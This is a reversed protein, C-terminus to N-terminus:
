IMCLSLNFDCQLLLRFHLAGQNRDLGLGALDFCHKAAVVEILALEVPGCLRHSLGSGGKLRKDVSSGHVIAQAEVVGDHVRGDTEARIRRTVVVTLVFARDAYTM